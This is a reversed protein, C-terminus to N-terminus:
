VMSKAVLQTVMFPARLQADVTMDFDYPTIDLINRSAKGGSSNVLIDIKHLHSLSFDLLEKAGEPRHIPIACGAADGGSNRIAEVVIAVAEANRGNVVVSVGQAALATAVGRGWGGSAGVVIAGKGELDPLQGMKYGDRLAPVEVVRSSMKVANLHPATM